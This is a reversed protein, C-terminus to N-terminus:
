SFTRITQFREKEAEIKGENGLVCCIPQIFIKQYMERYNKLEELTTDLIEHRNKLIDEHGTESFYLSMMKDNEM